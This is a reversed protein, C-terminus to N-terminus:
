LRFPPAPTSTNARPPLVSVPEISPSALPPEIVPMPLAVSVVCPAVVPKLPVAADTVVPNLLMVSRCPLPVSCPRSTALVQDPAVALELVPVLARLESLRSLTTHPFLTSRPLRRIMLFFFGHLPPPPSQKTRYPLVSVPEISPSALPQEIVPMPLAVSVVCPALVPTLPVAADTVVPNLLM